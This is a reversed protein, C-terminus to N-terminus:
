GNIIADYEYAKQEEAWKIEAARDELKQQIPILQSAAVATLTSLIACSVALEILSFGAENKFM